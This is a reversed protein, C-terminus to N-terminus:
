SILFYSSTVPTRDDARRRSIPREKTERDATRERENKRDTQGGRAGPGRTERKTRMECAAARQTPQLTALDTLTRVLAHYVLLALVPPLAAQALLAAAAAEALVPPPAARALVAAVAAEALVPPPAGQALVAAAAAEALVPPPAAHALVAATTADAVVPPLAALALLAAAAAEALM